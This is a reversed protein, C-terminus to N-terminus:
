RGDNCFEKIMQNLRDIQILTERTDKVSPYIPKVFVCDKGIVTIHSCGSM